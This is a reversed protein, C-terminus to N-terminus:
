RVTFYVIEDDDDDDDDNSATRSEFNQPRAGPHRREQGGEGIRRDREKRGERGEEEM